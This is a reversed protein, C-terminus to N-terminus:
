RRPEFGIAAPSYTTFLNARHFDRIFRGLSMRANSIHRRFWFVFGKSRCVLLRIELRIGRTVEDRERHSNCYPESLARRDTSATPLNRATAAVANQWVTTVRLSHM